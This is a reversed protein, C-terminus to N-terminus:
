SRSGLLFPPAVVLLASQREPLRIPEYYGAALRLGRLQLLPRCSLATRVPLWCRLFSPVLSAFRGAPWLRSPMCWFCCRKPSKYRRSLRSTRRKLKKRRRFSAALPTSPTVYLSYSLFRSLLRASKSPGSFR